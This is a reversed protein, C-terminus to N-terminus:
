EGVRGGERLAKREAGIVSQRGEGGEEERERAEVRECREGLGKM